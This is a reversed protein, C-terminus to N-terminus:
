RLLDQDIVWEVRTSPVRVVDRHAVADLAFTVLVQSMRAFRLTVMRGGDVPIKIEVDPRTALEAFTARQRERPLDALKITVVPKAQRHAHEGVVDLIDEVHDAAALHAPIDDADAAPAAAPPGAPQPLPQGTAAAVDRPTPTATATSTSDM